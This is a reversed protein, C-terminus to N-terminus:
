ARALVARNAPMVDLGIGAGLFDAAAAAARSTSAGGARRRIGALQSRLRTSQVTPLKTLTDRIVWARNGDSTHAARTAEADIFTLVAGRDV